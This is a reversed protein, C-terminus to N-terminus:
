RRIYEYKISGSDYLKNFGMGLMIEDENTTAWGLLDSVQEQKVIRKYHPDVWIYSPETITNKPCVEFGIDNYINNVIKSLDYYAMVSDPKYKDVFYRFIKAYGNPVNFGNKTCITCVEYQHDEDDSLKFTMISIIDGSKIDRLAIKISSGARYNLSNEEEFKTTDQASIDDISLNQIKTINNGIINNLMSEIQPRLKDNEWEHEFIHILKIGQRMCDLSKKQHYTKGKFESSHWYVGNFEVATKLEPIYIDLESGNLISRDHLICNYRSNLLIFIDKEAKSGFRKNLYEDLNYKSIYKRTTTKGLNMLNAADELFPKEGTKKEYDTLLKIIPEKSTFAPAGICGCSTRSGVLLNGLPLIVDNGCDCRCKCIMNPYRETITLKGFKDGIKVRHNCTYSTASSPHRLNYGRIEKVYGCKCKCLFRDGSVKQIVALDNIKVGIMDIAATPSPKKDKTKEDLKQQMILKRNNSRCIPCTSTSCLHKWSQKSHHGQLCVCDWYTDGLYEKATVEGFVKGTLDKFKKQGEIIHKSRNGCNTSTGNKLSNTAVERVEGCSCRCLQKRDGAYGIVTWEGFVQNDLIERRM